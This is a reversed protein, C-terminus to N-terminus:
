VKKMSKELNKTYIKRKKANNKINKCYKKEYNKHKCM